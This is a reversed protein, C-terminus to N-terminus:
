RILKLVLFKVQYRKALVRCTLHWHNPNTVCNVVENPEKFLKSESKSPSAAIEGCCGFYITLYIEKLECKWSLRKLDDNKLWLNWSWSSHCVSTWFILLSLRFLCHFVTCKMWFSYVLRSCVFINWIFLVAQSLRSRTNLRDISFQLRHIGTLSLSLTLSPLRSSPSNSLFSLSLTHSLGVDQVDQRHFLSLSRPWSPRAVIKQGLLWLKM